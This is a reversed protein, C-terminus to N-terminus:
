RGTSQWPKVKSYTDLLGDASLSTEETSKGFVDLYAWLGKLLNGELSEVAFFAKVKLPQQNVPVLGQSPNPQGSYEWKERRSLSLDQTTVTGKRIVGPPKSLVTVAM